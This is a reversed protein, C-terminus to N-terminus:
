ASLAVQSPDVTAAACCCCCCAICCCCCGGGGSTTTDGTKVKQAYVKTISNLDRVTLSEVATPTSGEMMAILNAKTLKQAAPTLAKAEAASLGLKALPTTLPLPKTGQPVPPM